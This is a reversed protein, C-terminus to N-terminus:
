IMCSLQGGIILSENYLKNTSIRVSQRGTGSANLKSTYDVGIYTAGHRSDILGNQQATSENVYQVFGHTPDPGDFFNFGDFFDDGQYLDELVYRKAPLWSSTALTLLPVFPLILNFMM